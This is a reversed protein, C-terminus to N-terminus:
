ALSVRSLALLGFAIIILGALRNVWKLARQNIRGRLLSFAGSLLFWWLASGCFVGIVLLVAALYGRQEEALGLGAFVAAFSLITAPNTLTLFFTSAYASALSGGGTPTTDAPPASFYIRIGLVLLFIGGILAFWRQQAVLMGAIFTLGFGAILGYVADATAAGLGSVFGYRRGQQLTRQICLLGIPGVPAAIAFGIILGRLFSSFEV